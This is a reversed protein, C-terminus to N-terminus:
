RGNCLGRTGHASNTNSTPTTAPEPTPSLASDFGIKRGIYQQTAGPRNSSGADYLAGSNSNSDVQGITNQDLTGTIQQMQDNAVSGSNEGPAPYRNESNWLHIIEGALPGTAIEATIEITPGSGTITENILLGENYGGVGSEGATLKIFKAGGANSPASVNAQHDAVAFEEGIDRSAYPNTAKDLTKSM